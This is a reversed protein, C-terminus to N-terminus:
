CNANKEKPNTKEKTADVFFFLFSLFVFLCAFSLQMFFYTYFANYKFGM